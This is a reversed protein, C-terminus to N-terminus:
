VKVDFGAMLIAYNQLTTKIFISRNFSKKSGMRDAGQRANKVANWATETFVRDSRSISTELLTIL